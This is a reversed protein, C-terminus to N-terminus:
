LSGMSHWPFPLGNTNRSEETIILIWILLCEMKMYPIVELQATGDMVYMRMEVNDVIEAMNKTYNTRCLVNLKRIDGRKITENDSIGYATPTIDLKDPLATGINFYSGPQKTTFELEVPKLEEGNYMLGGWVDYLM